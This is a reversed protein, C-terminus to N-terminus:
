QLHLYIDSIKNDNTVSHLNETGCIARFFSEIGVQANANGIVINVDHKHYTINSLEVLSM